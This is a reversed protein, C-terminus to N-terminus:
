ARRHHHAFGGFLRGEDRHIGGKVAGMHAAVAAVLATAAAFFAALVASIRATEAAKTAAERAQTLAAEADSRLKQAAAVAADVRTAAEAAPIGAQAAAASALYSREADSVDGTLAVNGLIAGVDASYDAAAAAPAPSGTEAAPAASVQAPRLLTSTIYNLPNPLLGGGAAGQDADEGSAEVAGQTAGGAVSGAVEAATQAVSGVASAATGAASLTTSVVGHLLILTVILTAGWVVLGNFGDRVTVEATAATEVRRRMRGAIYGGTMYSVVMSVVIWIASIVLMMDFSGEGPEASIVSLGLAAGFTNFVSGAAVAVVAGGFIAPWDLYSGELVREPASRSTTELTREM